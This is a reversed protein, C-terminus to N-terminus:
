EGPKPVWSVIYAVVPGVLGGIAGAVEAPMQHEPNYANWLWAILAAVPASTGAHGAVRKM